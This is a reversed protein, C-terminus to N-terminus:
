TSILKVGMPKWRPNVEKTFPVVSQLQAMDIFCGYFTHVFIFILGCSHRIFSGWVLTCRFWTCITYGMTTRNQLVIKIEVVQMCVGYLTSCFYHIYDQMCDFGNGMQGFSFRTCQALSVITDLLIALQNAHVIINPSKIAHIHAGPDLVQGLTLKGEWHLLFSLCNHAMIASVICTSYNVRGHSLRHEIWYRLLVHAVRIISLAVLPRRSAHDLKLEM